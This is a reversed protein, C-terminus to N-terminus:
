NLNNGEGGIDDFEHYTEQPPIADSPNQSIYDRYLGTRNMILQGRLVRGDGELEYNISAIDAAMNKGKIEAALVRRCEGMYINLAAEDLTIIDSDLTPKIKLAGTSADKFIRNSYYVMEYARGLSATLSDIKVFTLAAGATYNYIVNLYTIKTSDPTGVMSATTWDARLLNWANTDFATRGQPVTITKSWYASASNGWQIVISTLRTADPFKEWAFVSGLNLLTSLDIGYPLTVTINGQGTSGSLGFSLSGSSTIYDLTDITLNQADGGSTVVASSPINLSNLDVLLIQGPQIMKSIRLTKVGGIMEVVFSNREKKIDFERMGSGIPEDWKTRVGIPRIDQIRTRGKLDSPCTYNYVRDYIANDIRYTYTTDPPDIRALMTAAAERLKDNVDGVAKNLNAGHLKGSLKSKLTKVDIYDSM